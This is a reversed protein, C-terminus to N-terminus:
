SKELIILNRYAEKVAPWGKINDWKSKLINEKETQRYFNYVLFKELWIDHHQITPHIKTTPGYDCISIILNNSLACLNEIFIDVYEKEIHEAVELSTLVDFSRSFTIKKSLDCILIRDTPCQIFELCSENGEIGIADIDMNLAEQVLDGLACGCDIYTTPNYMEVISKIIFPARRKYSIRKGFFTRDYLDVSM